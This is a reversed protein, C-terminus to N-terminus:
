VLGGTLVIDEGGEDGRSSGESRESGEFGGVGLWGRVRVMGLSVFLLLLGEESSFSGEFISDEWELWGVGFEVRVGCCWWVFRMGTEGSTGGWRPGVKAIEEEESRTRTITRTRGRGVTRGPEM